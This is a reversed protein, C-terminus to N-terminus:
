IKLEKKIWKIKIFKLWLIKKKNSMLNKKYIKYSKKKTANM